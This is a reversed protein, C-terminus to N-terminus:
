KVLSLTTTILNAETDPTSSVHANILKDEKPL